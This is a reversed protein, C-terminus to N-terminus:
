ISQHIHQYNNLQQDTFDLSDASHFVHHQTPFAALIHSNIDDVNDNTCSLITRDLYYQDPQNPHHIGPYTAAILSQISNDNCLMQQPIQVTGADNVTTGAGIDLLWAAHAINKSSQDLRENRHLHYLKIRPWLASRRISAAITQERTGRPIVPLTQRFDGSFLITIGSFPRLVKRLDQLTRDVADTAHKHQMPVEDWIILDTQELLQHLDSGRHIRPLVSKRNEVGDLFDVTSPLITLTYWLICCM